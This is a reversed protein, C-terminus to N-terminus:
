TAIRNLEATLDREVEPVGKMAAQLTSVSNASAAANVHMLLAELYGKPDACAPIPYRAAKAIAPKAERLATSLVQTNGDKEASSVANLAAVVGKGNGEKWTNYQQICDAASTSHVVPQPSPSSTSSASTSSATTHSCAALGAVAVAGSIALAIRKM